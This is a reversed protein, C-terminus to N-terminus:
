SDLDVGKRIAETLEEVTYEELVESCMLCTTVGVALPEIRILNCDECKFSHVMIHPKM